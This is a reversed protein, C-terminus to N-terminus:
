NGGAHKQLEFWLHGAQPLILKEMGLRVAKTSGPLSFVVKGSAVGGVARSLMASAGIEAYSLMRFLEGFGDLRKDLRATITEYANDRLSIGTGGNAVIVAVAPDSIAAELEPAIQQPDDRVLAYRAVHHGALTVAEKIYRGSTDTETTRSDSMTLVAFGVPGHKAGAAQHEQFSPLGSPIDTM